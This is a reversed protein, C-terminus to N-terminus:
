LSLGGHMLGNHLDEGKPAVQRDSHIGDIANDLVISLQISTLFNSLDFLDVIKVDFQRDNRIAYTTLAIALEDLDAFKARGITCTLDYDSIEDQYTVLDVLASRNLLQSLDELMFYYYERNGSDFHIVGNGAEKLLVCSILRKKASEFLSKQYRPSMGNFIFDDSYLSDIFEHSKVADYIRMAGIECYLHNLGQEEIYLTPLDIFQSECYDIVSIYRIVEEVSCNEPLMLRAAKNPPIGKLLAIEFFAANCNIFNPKLIGNSIDLQADNVSDHALVMVSTYNDISSKKIYSLYAENKLILSIAFDFSDDFNMQVPSTATLKVGILSDLVKLDKKENNFFSDIIAPLVLSKFSELSSQQFAFKYFKKTLLINNFCEGSITDSSLCLELSRILDSETVHEEM